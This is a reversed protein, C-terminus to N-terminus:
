AARQDFDALYRLVFEANEAIGRVLSPSLMKPMHDGAVEILDRTGAEQAVAIALSFARGAELKARIGEIAAQKLERPLSSKELEALQSALETGLKGATRKSAKDVIWKKGDSSKKGNTGNLASNVRNSM